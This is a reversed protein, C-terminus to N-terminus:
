FPFVKPLLFMALLWVLINLPTGVTLYDRFKYNGPGNFGIHGTRRIGLM